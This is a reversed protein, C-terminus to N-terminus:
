LLCVPLSWAVSSPQLGFSQGSVSECPYLTSSSAYSFLVLWFLVLAAARLTFMINVAMSFFDIHIMGGAQGGVVFRPPNWDFHQHNKSLSSQPPHRIQFIYDPQFRQSRWQWRSPQRALKTSIISAEFKIYKKWSQRQFLYGQQYTQCVVM